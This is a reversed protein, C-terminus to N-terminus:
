HKKTLAPRIKAVKYFGPVCMAPFRGSRNPYYPEYLGDIPVPTIPVTTAGARVERRVKLDQVDWAKARQKTIHALSRVDTFTDALGVSSALLAVALVGVGLAVAGGVSARRGAASVREGIAARLVSAVVVVLWAVGLVLPATISPWTRERQNLQGNFAFSLVFTAANSALVAGLLPLLVLAVGPRGRLLRSPIRVVLLGALVASVLLPVVEARGMVFQVVVWWNSLSTRWIAPDFVSGSKILQQRNQSGPSFYVSVFGVLLGVIAVLPLRPSVVRPVLMWALLMTGAVVLCAATFAENFTGLFAAVLFVAALALWPRRGGLIGCLAIVVALVITLTHSIITPSHFLTQYQHPKALLVVVVSSVGLAAGAAVADFTTRTLRRLLLAWVAALALVLLGLVLVPFVKSGFGYNVFVLGNVFANGLRGNQSEYINSVVASVGGDRGLPLLCWDDSAPRVYYAAIALPAMLLGVVAAYGLLGWAAARGSGAPDTPATGVDTM